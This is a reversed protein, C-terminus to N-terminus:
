GSVGCSGSISDHTLPFHPFFSTYDYKFEPPWYSGSAKDLIYDAGLKGAAIKALLDVFRDVDETNNYCGFSARVMGPLRSRDGGIIEATIEKAEAENFKLLRKVYPHACFCGNRVGIGGEASLIAAVKAHPMNNVNFSIVGVKDVFALPDTPGYITIGPIQLMREMAYLILHYEHHAITQMGVGQLMGIATALAVAGPVNPSGAEEKAPPPSFAVFDEEVIEVVGGGVMDPVGEEFWAKPGILVGTGFPAYMKHAAYAIFDIHGPDDDPLVDIPRHPALQAADVFIYAGHEHALRALDHIPNVIGTINSAGTVALFRVRGKYQEFALKMAELDLYGLDDVGIHVYHAYKRWPLDNSHHEMLTTLVVDGERWPCRNALKNVVETTNKGFIVTNTELNAGVFRGAINHAEDFVKTALLAKFGTGRHVGSYYPMFDNMVDIVKQFPPTSAGNDLFVYPIISGNRLPVKTDIGAIQGRLSDISLTGSHSQSTNM